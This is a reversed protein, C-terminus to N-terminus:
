YVDIPFKGSLWVLQAAYAHLKPVNSPHAEQAHIAASRLKDIAELDKAFM